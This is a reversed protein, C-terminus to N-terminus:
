RSRRHQSVAYLVRAGLLLGAVLYVWLPMMLVYHSSRETTDLFRSELEVKYLGLWNVDQWEVAIDRTTEPLVAVQRESKFKVGGFMDSVKMSTTVLFDTNGSNKIRQHTSLPANLQLLPVSTSLLKGGTIIDGDVTAYLISGVRKRREVANGNTESVPQTEAFLVGYHGGPATDEPVRVTFKVEVSKGAELRYSSREFQVWRYADANQASSSFDPTYSEDKVSYPRAYVIFDYAVRGDNIVTFSDQRTTGAKIEFRKSVPSLTISEPPLTTEAAAATGSLLSIACLATLLGAGLRWSM